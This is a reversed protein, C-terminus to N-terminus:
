REKQLVLEISYEGVSHEEDKTWVYGDSCEKVYIFRYNRLCEVVFPVIGITCPKEHRDILYFNKHDKNFRSPLIKKKEYLDRHPVFLILFGGVKLIRFWTFLAVDPNDLHELCHSSYVFDYTNPSIGRMFHADGETRDWQVCDPTIPDQGCGIDIGKGKCYKDFFGELIRRNKAKGTEM